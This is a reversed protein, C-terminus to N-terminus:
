LNMLESTLGEFKSNLNSQQNEKEKLEEELEKASVSSPTSFGNQNPTGVVSAEAVVSSTIEEGNQLKQLLVLKTKVSACLTEREKLQQNMQKTNQEWESQQELHVKLQEKISDIQAADVQQKEGVKSELKEVETLFSQVRVGAEELKQSLVTCQQKAEELHRSLTTCSQSLKDRQECQRQVENRVTKLQQGVMDRGDRLTVELGAVRGEREKLDVKTMALKEILSAVEEKTEKLLRHMELTVKKWKGRHKQQLKLENLLFGLQIAVLDEKNKIKADLDEVADQRTQQERRFLNLRTPISTCEAETKELMTEVNLTSKEWADLEDKHTNYESMLPQMKQAFADDFEKVKGEMTAVGKEKKVLEQRFLKSRTYLGVIERKTDNLQVELTETKKDWSDRDDQEEKLKRQLPAIAEASEYEKTNVRAELKEVQENYNEKEGIFLRSRTVLGVCEAETDKLLTVISQTSDKWKDRDSRKLSVEHKLAKIRASFDYEKEQLRATLTTVNNERLCLEEDFLRCRVTVARCTDEMNKLAQNGALTAEIIRDREKHEAEVQANLSSLEETLGRENNIIKAKMAKIADERKQLEGGFVIMRTKLGDTGAQKERLLQDVKTTSDEWRCLEKQQVELFAKAKLVRGAGEDERLVKELSDVSEQCHTLDDICTELRSAIPLCEEQKQNLIQDINEAQIKWDDRQELYARLSLKLPTIKSKSAQMKESLRKQLECVQNDLKSLEARFLTQRTQLGPIQEKKEKLNHGIEIAKGTWEDRKQTAAELEKAFSEGSQHGRKTELKTEARSVTEEHEMVQVMFLELRTGLGIAEDEIKKCLRVIDDTKDKWEDRERTKDLLATQSRGHTASAATEVECIKIDQDSVLQRRKELEQAFLKSRTTLGICERKTAKLTKNLQLTEEVGQEHKKKLESLAEFLENKKSSAKGELATYAKELKAVTEKRQKLENTFLMSRTELGVISQKTDKLSHTLSETKKKWENRHEELVRIDEDFMPERGRAVARREKSTSELIARREQYSQLDSVLGKVQTTLDAAEKKRDTLLQAVRETSMRWEDRGMTQHIVQKRLTEIASGGVEVKDTLKTELLGVIEEKSELEQKFLSARTTLGVCQAQKENLTRNIEDTKFTWADREKRQVDLKERDPAMEATTKREKEQVSTELIAVRKDKTALEARFLQLRTKLGQTEQNKGELMVKIENTKIKWSNREEQLRRLENGYPEMKVAEAVEREKVKAELVGVNEQRGQLEREFLEFRTTLGVVQAKKDQLLQVVDDTTKNWEDRHKQQGELQARLTKIDNTALDEMGDLKTELSAVQEERFQLEKLFLDMRATLQVFEERKKTLELGTTTLTEQCDICQQREDDLQQQMADIRGTAMKERKEVESTLATVRDELAKLEAKSSALETTLRFCQDRREQLLRTMEQAAQELKSRQQVQADLERQLAKLETRSLREFDNMKSNLITVKDQRSTLEATFMQLKSTLESTHEKEEALRKRLAAETTQSAQTANGFDLRQDGEKEKQAAIAKVKAALEACEDEKLALEKARQAQEQHLSQQLTEVKAASEAEKQNAKQSVGHWLKEHNELDSNLTQIKSILDNCLSEKSTLNGQEQKQREQLEKKLVEIQSSLDRRVTDQEQEFVSLRDNRANLESQFKDVTAKHSDLAQQLADNEAALIQKAQAEKDLNAKLLAAAAADEEIVLAPPSNSTSGADKGKLSSVSAHLGSDAITNDNDSKLARSQAEMQPVDVGENDDGGSADAIKTKHQRYYWFARLLLMTVVMVIPIEASALVPQSKQPTQVASLGNVNANVKVPVGASGDATLLPLELQEMIVMTEALLAATGNVDSSSSTSSAPGGRQLTSTTTSDVALSSKLDMLDLPLALIRQLDKVILGDPNDHRKQVWAQLKSLM